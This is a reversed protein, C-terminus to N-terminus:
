AFSIEREPKLAAFRGGLVSNHHRVIEEATFRGNSFTSVADEVLISSYGLSYARRCTTDVCFESQLGCIVLGTIGRRQLEEHLPTRHFADWTPKEVILEGSQPAIMRSIEWTPLGRTYEQDETHQIYVVPAGAQRAKQLLSTIRGMVGEEDYMREDYSFMAEQVDIIMLATTM